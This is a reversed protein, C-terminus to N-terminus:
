YLHAEQEPRDDGVLRGYQLRVLRVREDPVRSRYQRRELTFTYTIAQAPNADGGALGTNHYFRGYNAKVTTKGNGFLDWAIGVRPAIDSYQELGSEGPINWNGAYPTDGPIRYGNPLAGGGYFFNRFPGEPIM